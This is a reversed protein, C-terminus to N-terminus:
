RALKGRCRNFSRFYELGKKGSYPVLGEPDPYGFGVLMTVRQSSELGLLRQMRLELPEFDPWNIVTSSLGLTELGLLFSMTALSSDIYIAHRDRPSAYNDLNGVVVALAPIQQAYGKTGFPVSAVRKVLEPEDYIMFEYPQRNCATPSLGASTLAKDILSRPVPEQLFWRISRRRLALQHFDEHGFPCAPRNGAPYPANEDGDSDPQETRKFTRFAQETVSTVEVTKFYRRLVDQAWRLEQKDPGKESEGGSRLCRRYQEVADAIYGEAFRSRLPRMSLGKEIRHISRRLEASRRSRASLSRYYDRRGRLVAYQERNFTPFALTAYLTALLRNSAFIELTGRVAYYHARRVARFQALSEVIGKIFELM